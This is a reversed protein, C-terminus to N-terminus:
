IVRHLKILRIQSYHVYSPQGITYSMPKHGGHCVLNTLLAFRTRIKYDFIWM